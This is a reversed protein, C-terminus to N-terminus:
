YRRLYMGTLRDHWTLRDEDLMAWAFGLGMPCASVLMALLRRRIARRTPNGDAFTCFAIRACRMGPTAEAFCFFLAEYAMLLFAWVVGGALAVQVPALGTRAAMAQMATALQRISAPQAIPRGWIAALTVGFVLLGGLVVAANIAWALVRRGMPAVELAPGSSAMPMVTPDPEAAAAQAAAAREAETAAGPGDLWISTWQAAPTTAEEAEAAPTTSIQAPDVEFIRLQGDALASESDDRLPGEAYRPRAKRPAVLQRPFQILNAPLAVPPGAPEEFVPAQRFAIEEDLARSEEDSRDDRIEAASARRARGRAEGPLPVHTASDEDEYLRVTIRGNGAPAADHGEFLGAVPGRRERLGRGARAAKAEPRTGRPGELELDPWLNLELAPQGADTGWAAARDDRGAQGSIQEDPQQDPQQNPGTPQRSLSELLKRQAAAVAEANLAAIEAAARAQQLAREAEAALFARYSPAHAYREAVAAAIRASRGEARGNAGAPQDGDGSADAGPAGGRRRRHAALRTAVQMRLEEALATGDADARQSGAADAPRTAAFEQGATTNLLASGM